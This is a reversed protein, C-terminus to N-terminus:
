KKRCNPGHKLTPPPAEAVMLVHGHDTPYSQAIPRARCLAALDALLGRLTDDHEAESALLRLDPELTRSDARVSVEHDLRGARVVEDRLHAVLLDLGDRPDPQSTCLARLTREELRRGACARSLTAHSMGAAAAIAFATTNKAICLADVSRALNSSSM